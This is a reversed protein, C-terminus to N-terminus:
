RATWYTVLAKYRVAASGESEQGPQWTMRLTREFFVPEIDGFFRYMLADGPASKQSLGAGIFDGWKNTQVSAKGNSFYWGSGFFDETGNSTVALNGDTFITPNGELYHYDTIMNNPTVFLTVSEMEGGGEANVQPLLDLMQMAKADRLPTLQAHWVARSPKSLRRGLHHIVDAFIMQRTPTQLDITCGNTFNIETSRNASWEDRAPNGIGLHDLLFPTTPYDQAMFFTGTDVIQPQAAGDCRVALKVTDPNANGVSIHLSNITGSVGPGATFIRCAYGANCYKYETISSRTPRSDYPTTAAPPPTGDATLGDDTVTSGCAIHTNGHVTLAGNTIGGGRFVRCFAAGAVAPVDIRNVEAASDAVTSCGPTTEGTKYDLLKADASKSARTKRDPASGGFYAAVCYTHTGEVPQYAAPTATGATLQPQWTSFGSGSGTFRVSGSAPAGTFFVGDLYTFPAVTFALQLKCFGGATPSATATIDMGPPFRGRGGGEGGGNQFGGGGGQGNFGGGGGAVNVQLVNAATVTCNSLDFWNDRGVSRLGTQAHIGLDFFSGSATANASTAGGASVAPKAADAKALMTL